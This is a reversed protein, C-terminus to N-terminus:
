FVGEKQETCLFNSDNELEKELDEVQTLEEEEEGDGDEGGRGARRNGGSEGGEERAEGEDARGTEERGERGDGLTERVHEEGEAEERAVQSFLDSPEVTLPHEIREVPTVAADEAVETSFTHVPARVRASKTRLRTKLEDERLQFLLAVLSLSVPSFSGLSKAVQDCACKVQRRMEVLRMKEDVKERSHLSQAKNAKLSQLRSPPRRRVGEREDLQCLFLFCVMQINCPVETSTKTTTQQM